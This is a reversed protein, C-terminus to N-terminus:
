VNFATLIAWSIPRPPLILIIICAANKLIALIIGTSSAIAYKFFATTVDYPLFPSFTTLIFLAAISAPTSAITLISTGSVQAFATSLSTAVVLSTGANILSITSGIFLCSPNPNGTEVNTLCPISSPVNM